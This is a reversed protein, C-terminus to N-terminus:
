SHHKGPGTSSRGRLLTDRWNSRHRFSHAPRENVYHGSGPHDRQVDHQFAGLDPALRALLEAPGTTEVVLRSRRPSLPIVIIQEACAPGEVSHWRILEDPRREDLSATFATGDLIWRHTTEAVATVQRVGARFLPYDEIRCMREYAVHAPVELDVTRRVTAGLRDM